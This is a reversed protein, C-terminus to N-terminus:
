DFLSLQKPLKAAYEPDSSFFKVGNRHTIPCRGKYMLWLAGEESLKKVYRCIHERVIGTAVYAQKMTKPKDFFAIQTKNIQSYHTDKDSSKACMAPAGEPTSTKTKM